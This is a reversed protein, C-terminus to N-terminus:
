IYYIDRFVYRTIEDRKLGREALKEDSLYTLYELERARHNISAANEFFEAIKAFIGPRRASLEKTIEVSAM